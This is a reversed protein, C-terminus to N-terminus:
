EVMIGYVPVGDHNSSDNTSVLIDNPNTNRIVSDHLSKRERQRLNVCYRFTIAYFGALFVFCAVGTSEDLWLWFAKNEPDREIMHSVAGSEWALAFLVIFSFM